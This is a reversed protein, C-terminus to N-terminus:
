VKDVFMAREFNAVDDESSPPPPLLTQVTADIIVFDEEEEKPSFSSLEGIDTKEQDEEKEKKYHDVAKLLLNRQATFSDSFGINPM